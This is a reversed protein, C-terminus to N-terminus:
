SLLLDGRAPDAGAEVVAQRLERGLDAPPRLDIEYLNDCLIEYAVVDEGAALLVRVSEPTSAISEEPSEALAQETAQLVSEVAQAITTVLLMMGPSVVAGHRQDRQRASILVSSDPGIVVPSSAKVLDGSRGLRM